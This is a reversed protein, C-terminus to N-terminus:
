FDHKKLRTHMGPDIDRTAVFHRGVDSNFKLAICNSASPFQPHREYSLKPVDDVDKSATDADSLSMTTMEIDITNKSKCLEMEQELTELKNKRVLTDLKADGLSSIANAFSKAAEGYKDLLKLCEANRQYLKYKLEPPYNNCIAREIDGMCELLYDMKKLVASRNAYALGLAISDPPAFSLSETYSRLASTYSGKAFHENGRERCIVSMKVCKEKKDKDAINPFPLRELINKILQYRSLDSKSHVLSLGLLPNNGFNKVANEYFADFLAM